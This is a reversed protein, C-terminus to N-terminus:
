VAETKQAGLESDFRVDISKFVFQKTEWAHAVVLFGDRHDEAPLRRLFQCDRVQLLLICVRAGFDQTHWRQVM